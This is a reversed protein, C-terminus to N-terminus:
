SEGTAVRRQSPKHGGQKRLSEALDRRRLTKEGRCAAGAEERARGPMALDVAHLLVCSTM